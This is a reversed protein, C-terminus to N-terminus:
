KIYVLEEKVLNDDPSDNSKARSRVLMNTTMAYVLYAGLSGVSYLCTIRVPVSLHCLTSEEM